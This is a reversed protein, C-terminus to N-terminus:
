SGAKDQSIEEPYRLRTKEIDEKLSHYVWEVAEAAWYFDCHESVDLKEVRIVKVDKEKTELRELLPETLVLYDKGGHYISLPPFREDFWRDLSDDLCCKRHAFGGKGCWWFVSASSVPTPTFRFMKTKRRHLWNADTWNFLFAFMTYGMTAFLKAPAYNYSYRMLPIFDLVGFLKKWTNWEIKGLQAFPFGTTLPGAYVAPALAVFLSLRKGLSPCMGLSLSIFALGNGQSHGIFAIKSYGTEACVHNVLAPLDYMALERITWDWFRPDSTSFNRHGMGYVGRTNGLYVQYGGQKALWFALSREESTVFSGSSQFLGHLILVPYGGKGDSHKRADPDIVRNVRLYFGDETEITQNEMDMGIALAYDRPDKSVNEHKSWYAEDDWPFTKKPKKGKLMRPIQQRIDTSVAWAVVGTLFITSIILSVSQMMFLKVKEPATLPKPSRPSYTSLSPPPFTPRLLHQTPSSSRDIFVRRLLTSRPAGAELSPSPARSSAMSSVEDRYRKQEQRVDHLLTEDTVMRKVGGTVLNPNVSTTAGSFYDADTVKTNQVKLDPIGASNAPTGNKSKARMATAVQEHVPKGDFLEFEPTRVSELDQRTSLHRLARAQKHATLGNPLGMAARAPADMLGIPESMEKAPTPLLEAQGSLPEGPTPKLMKAYNSPSPIERQGDPLNSSIIDPVLSSIPPIPLTEPLLKELLGRNM